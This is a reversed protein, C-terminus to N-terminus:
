TQPGTATARSPVSCWDSWSGEYLLANPVGALELAFVTQCANVGSGCYCAVREAGEAGLQAFAARLEGAALFRPDDASRV